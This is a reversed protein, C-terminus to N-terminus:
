TQKASPKFQLRGESLMAVSGPDTRENAYDFVGRGLLVTDAATLPLTYIAAVADFVSCVKTLLISGDLGSKFVTTITWGAISEVPDLTFTILVDEGIWFGDPGLFDNHATPMDKSARVSRTNARAARVSPTNGRAARVYILRPELVPPPPPPPLVPASIVSGMRPPPETPWEGHILRLLLASIPGHPRPPQGTALTLSAIKVQENNPRGLRPELDAPWSSIAQWARQVISVPTAPVTPTPPVLTVPRPPVNPVPEWADRVARPITAGPPTYVPLISIINAVSPVNRQPMVIPDWQPLIVPLPNHPGQVPPPTANPLASVISRPLQRPEPPPPEWSRMLAALQPQPGVRPPQDPNGPAEVTTVVILLEMRDDSLAYHYSPLRTFPVFAVVPPPLPLVAANARANNYPASSRCDLDGPWSAIAAAIMMARGVQRFPPQDGQGLIPVHPIPLTAATPGVQPHPPPHHFIAM